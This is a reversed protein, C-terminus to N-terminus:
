KLPNLAHEFKAEFALVLMQGLGLPNKLKPVKTVWFSLIVLGHHTLPLILDFNVASVEQTVGPDREPQPRCRVLWEISFCWPM